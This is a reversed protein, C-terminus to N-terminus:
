PARRLWTFGLLAQGGLCALAGALWGFSAERRRVVQRQELRTRELADIEAYVAELADPSAAQFARGGTQEAVTALTQAARLRAPGRGSGALITYVQIEFSAALQAAEEPRVVGANHEGDTLLIIAKGKIELQEGSGATRRVGKLREVALALGDGIATGDEARTQVTEMRELQRLLADHDFTLPCVSDAFRAFRILGILDTPRGPLAPPDGAVFRGFVDKVVVLRTQPRGLLAMDRATMSSSTDLVMMLAVGDAYRQGTATEEQPRAVAVVLLGLGVTNLVPLLWTPRWRWREAPVFDVASFRIAQRRRLRWWRWWLLPLGLLLWLVAPYAFTM